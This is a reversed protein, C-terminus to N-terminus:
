AWGTGDLLLLIELSDNIRIGGGCVCVCVLFGSPRVIQGKTSATPTKRDM